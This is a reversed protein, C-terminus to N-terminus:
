QKIVCSYVSILLRNLQKIELIIYLNGLIVDIGPDVITAADCLSLYPQNDHKKHSLREEELVFDIKGDKIHTVCANHSSNFALIRNSLPM